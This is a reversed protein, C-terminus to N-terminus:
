PFFPTPGEPQSAASATIDIEQNKFGLFSIQLKYNGRPVTLSYFGYDNTTTGIKLDPIIVNVGILTENNENDSIYGSLTVKDQSYSSTQNYLVFLISLLFLFNGKNISLNNFKIM